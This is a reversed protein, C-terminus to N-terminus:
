RKGIRKGSLQYKVQRGNENINIVPPTKSSKIGVYTILLSAVTALFILFNYYGGFFASITYISFTGSQALPIIFTANSNKEQSQNNIIELSIHYTGAQMNQFDIHKGIRVTGNSYISMNSPQYTTGSISIFAASFSTNNLFSVWYSFDIGGSVNTEAHMIVINPTSSPPLVTVNVESTNTDNGGRYAGWASIFIHYTGPSSFDYSISQGGFTHNNISWSYGVVSVNPGIFSYAHVTLQILSDQPVLSPVKPSIRINNALVRLYTHLKLVTGSNDTIKASILYTGVTNFSSPLSPSGFGSLGKTWCINSQSVGSGGQLNVTGVDTYPIPLISPSLSINGSLPPNVSISVISSNTIYGSSDRLSLFVFYTGSAQFSYSPSSATSFLTYNSSNSLREYWSYYYPSTGSQVSSVFSIPNGVDTTTKNENISVTPDTNVSEIISSNSSFNNSTIKWSLLFNGQSFFSYTFNSSTGSLLISSSSSQGDYLTFNYSYKGTGGSPTANFRIPVGIDAPNHSPSISVSPPPDSHVTATRVYEGGDSFSYGAVTTTCNATITYTGISNFTINESTYPFGDYSGSPGAAMSYSGGQIDWKLSTSLNAMPPHQFLNYLIINHNVDTSVNPPIVVGYNKYAPPISISPFNVPPPYVHYLLENSQYSGTVAGNYTFQVAAFIHMPTSINVTGYQSILCLYTYPTLNSSYRLLGADPLSGVVFTSPISLHNGTTRFTENPPFRSPQDAPKYFFCVTWNVAHIQWGQPVSSAQVSLNLPEGVLVNSSSSTGPHSGTLTISISTSPTATTNNSPPSYPPITISVPVTGAGHGLLLISSGSLVFALAILILLFRKNRENKLMKNIKDKIM